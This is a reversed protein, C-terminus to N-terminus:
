DLTASLVVMLLFILFFSSSSSSCSWVHRDALIKLTNNYFYSYCTVSKLDVWVSATIVVSLVNSQKRGEAALVSCAFVFFCFVVSVWLDFYNFLTYSQTTKFIQDCCNHRCDPISCSFVQVISDFM